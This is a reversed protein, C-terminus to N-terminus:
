VNILERLICGSKARSPKMFYYSYYLEKDPLFPM